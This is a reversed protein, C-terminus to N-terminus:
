GRLRKLVVDCAGDWATFAGNATLHDLGAETIGGPTALSRILEDAPAPDEALMRGAATFTAAALQRAVEAPLGHRASWDAGAGILAQAWGYVAASVTAVEFEEESGIPIVPGLRALWDAVAGDHPYLLTPSAGYAAATVPMIRVIHAAPAAGALSAVTVGACASVLTHRAGLELSATVTAADAPRVALLITGVKRVVEANDTALSFGHAAALAKGHGRPSLIVSEPEVGSRMLGRLVATALHGVGIVGLMM